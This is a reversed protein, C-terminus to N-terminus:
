VAPPFRSRDRFRGPYIYIHFPETSKRLPWSALSHRGGHIVQAVEHRDRPNLRESLERATVTSDTQGVACKDADGAAVSCMPPPTPSGKIGSVRLIQLQFNIASIGILQSVEESGKETLM